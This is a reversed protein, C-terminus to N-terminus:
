HKTEVEVAEVTIMPPEDGVREIQDKMWDPPELKHTHDHKVTGSHAVEVRNGYRAANLHGARWKKSDVVVRGVHPNIHEPNPIAAPVSYDKDQAAKAADYDPNQITKVLLMRRELDMIECDVSEASAQRARAYKEVLEVYKKDGM